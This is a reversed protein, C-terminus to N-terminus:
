STSLKVISLSIPVPVSPENNFNLITRCRPKLKSDDFWNIIKLPDSRLGLAQFTIWYYM